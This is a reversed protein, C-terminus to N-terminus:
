RIHRRASNPLICSLTRSDFEVILTLLRHYNEAM